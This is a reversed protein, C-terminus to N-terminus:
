NKLSVSDLSTGSEVFQKRDDIAPPKTQLPKSNASKKREDVVPPKTQVSMRRNGPTIVVPRGNMDEAYKFGVAVALPRQRRQASPDLLLGQPGERSSKAQSPQQRGSPLRRHDRSEVAVSYYESRGSSSRSVDDRTYKNTKNNGSFL